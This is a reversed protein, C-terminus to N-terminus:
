NSPCAIRPVEKWPRHLLSKACLLKLRGQRSEVVTALKWYGTVAVDVVVVVAVVYAVVIVARKRAM